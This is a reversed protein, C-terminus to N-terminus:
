YSQGRVLKEKKEAGGGSEAVKVALFRLKDRGFVEGAREGLVERNAGDVDVNVRQGVGLGEDEGAELAAGSRNGDAERRAM